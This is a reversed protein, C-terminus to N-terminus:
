RALLLDKEQVNGRQARSVGLSQLASEARQKGRWVHQLHAEPQAAVDLLQAGGVGGEGLARGRYRRHELQAVLPLARAGRVTAPRRLRM